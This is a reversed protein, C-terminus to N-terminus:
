ATFDPRAGDPADGGGGSSQPFPEEHGDIPRDTRVTLQNVVGRVGATDWADDWAYRAELYDNVEGTLTVVQGTVAVQIRNADIYGDQHLNQRVSQMIEQDDIERDMGGRGGPWRDSAHRQPRDLEPHRRYAQEPIFTDRAYARDYGMGGGRGRDWGTNWGADQGRGYGGSRDYEAGYGGSGGYGGGTGYGGGMGGGYGGTGGGMRGQQMGSGGFRDYEAGYGGRGGYYMGRNQSGPYGGYTPYGGAYLGRDYGRVDRGTDWERYLGFGQGEFGQGEFGGGSGMGWGADYGYGREGRGGRWGRGYNQNWGRDYRDM